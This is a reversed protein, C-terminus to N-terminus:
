HFLRGLWGVLMGTSAGSQAAEEVEARRIVDGTHRTRERVSRTLEEIKGKDLWAGHDPCVSVHIDYKDVVRMASHCIPCPVPQGKNMEPTQMREEPTM